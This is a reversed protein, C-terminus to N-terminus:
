FIAGFIPRRAYKLFKWIYVIPGFPLFEVLRTVRTTTPKQVNALEFGVLFHNKMNCAPHGSKAFKRMKPWEKRQVTIKIV